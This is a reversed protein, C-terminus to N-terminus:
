RLAPTREAEIPVPRVTTSTPTSAPRLTSWFVATMCAAPIWMLLGSGGLADAGIVFAVVVLHFVQGHYAVLAVLHPHRRLGAVPRDPSGRDLVALVAILVAATAAFGVQSGLPLGFWFGPGEYAFLRGLFFRHGLRSVPDLIWLAWVALMLALLLETWQKPARTRWPGSALLRGAAFAMYAMFTYSLPVMLPVDGIFLEDGRLSDDFAYRTYPVGLHVSANEAAAGVAVAAVTYVLTRRWGLHRSACWLFTLGFVTVYWRGVVTGLVEDVAAFRLGVPLRRAPATARTVPDVEPMPRAM